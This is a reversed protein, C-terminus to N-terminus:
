SGYTLSLSSRSALTAWTDSKKESTEEIASLTSDSLEVSAVVNQLTKCIPGCYIPPEEEACMSQSAARRTSALTGRLPPALRLAHAAPFLVLALLTQWRMMATPM